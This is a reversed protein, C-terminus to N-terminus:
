NDHGIAGLQTLNDPPRTVTSHPRVDAVDRGEVLGNGGEVRFLPDLALRDDANTWLSASVAIAAILAQFAIAIPRRAKGPPLWGPCNLWRRSLCAWQHAGHDRDGEPRCQPGAAERQGLVVLVPIRRLDLRQQLLVDGFLDVALLRPDGRDLDRVLRPAEGRRVAVGARDEPVHQLSLDLGLEFAQRQPLQLDAIREVLRGHREVGDRPVRALRRIRPEE